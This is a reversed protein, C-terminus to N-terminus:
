EKRGSRGTSIKNQLPAPDAFDAIAIEGAFAKQDASNACCNTIHV